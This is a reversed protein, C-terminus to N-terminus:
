GFSNKQWSMLLWDGSATFNNVAIRIRLILESLLNLIQLYDNAM